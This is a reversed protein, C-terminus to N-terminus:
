RRAAKCASAMAPVDAHQIATLEFAEGALTVGCDPYFGIAQEASGCKRRRDPSGCFTRPAIEVRIVADGRNTDRVSCDLESLPYLIRPFARTNFQGCRSFSSVWFGTQHRTM